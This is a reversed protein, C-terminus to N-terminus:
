NDEPAKYITLSANFAAKNIMYNGDSDLDEILKLCNYVSIFSDQKKLNFISKVAEVSNSEVRKLKFLLKDDTTKENTLCGLTIRTSDTLTAYAFWEAVRSINSSLSNKIHFEYKNNFDKWQKNDDFVTRLLTREGNHDLADVHVKTYIFMKENISIKLYRYMSKYNIEDLKKGTVLKQFVEEAFTARETQGGLEEETEPLNQTDNENYTTLYVFPNDSAVETYLYCKNGEKRIGVNRPFEKKSVTALLLFIYDPMLFATEDDELELNNYLDLLYDDHIMNMPPSYLIDDFPLKKPRKPTFNFVRKDVRSLESDKVEKLVEINFDIEMKTMNPIQYYCVEKWESKVNGISNFKLKIVNTKTAYKNKLKKKRSSLAFTSQTVTNQYNVQLNQLLTPKQIKSKLVRLRSTSEQTIFGEEDEEGEESDVAGYRSVDRTCDRGSDVSTRSSVM